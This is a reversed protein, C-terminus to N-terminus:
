RPPHDPGTFAPYPPLPETQWSGTVALLRYATETLAPLEGISELADAMSQWRHRLLQRMTPVPTRTHHMPADATMARTGLMTTMGVVWHATALAVGRAWTHDDVPCVTGVETRYAADIRGVLETPLRFVCWCTAFPMTTYAADAYVSHYGAGEFDLVRLGDPTLVNNDPCIDGPSFVRPGDLETIAALDDTLDNPLTVGLEVLTAPFTDEAPEPTPSAIFEPERGYTEAAIRGYTTAWAILADTAAGPEDGLLVDALSPATGLDAMVVLSADQDVALLRPGHTTFALGAAEAAFNPAGNHHAKVVVTGGDATRCRLVTTRASGGLDVPETLETRLAASAAALVGTHDPTVADTM